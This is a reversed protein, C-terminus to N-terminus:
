RGEDVEFRDGLKRLAARVQPLEAARVLLLGEGAIMRAEVKAETLAEHLAKLLKADDSRCGVLDEVAFSARRKAPAAAARPARKPTCLKGPGAAFGTAEHTVVVPVRLKEELVAVARKPDRTVAFGSPADPLTLAGLEARVADAEPGLLEILTVDELVTLKHAHGSWADVAAAVSEPLAGRTLAFLIPAIPHAEPRTAAWAVARKQDIRLRHTPPEEALTVCFPRLQDLEQEPWSPAEVIVEFDERVTVSVQDLVPDGRLVQALRTSLKFARVRERPPKNHAVNAPLKVLALEVFSCLYPIEQLFYQLYRGEVREFVDPTRETLARPGQKWREDPDEHFNEYLDVFTAESKEGRKKEWASLERPPVRKLTPSLIADRATAKVHAILEEMRLWEGTPLEALLALLRRRMAPLDLRAHPGTASGATDFRPERGFLTSHSFFESHTTEALKDVIAREKELPSSALWAEFRREDVVVHNDPFSPAYSSQGAYVGKVDFDVLGLARAFRSVYDAWAIEVEPDASAGGEDRALIKVLKLAPGKPIENNRHARKLGERRVFDVFLYVDRRLDVVGAPYLQLGKLASPPLPTFASM